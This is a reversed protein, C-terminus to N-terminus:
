DIIYVEEIKSKIFEVFSDWQQQSEFCSRPMIYAQQVNIYIYAVEGRIFYACDLASYKRKSEDTPTAEEVYEESFEMTATPSYLPKKSKSSIMKVLIITVVKYFPKVLVILLVGFVAMAVLGAIAAKDFGHTMAFRVMMVAVLAVCMIRMLLTTKKCYKSHTNHFTNFDYYQKDTLQINFKFM